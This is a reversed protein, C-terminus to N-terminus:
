QADDPEADPVDAGTATSRAVVADALRFARDVALEPDANAAGAAEAAALLRIALKNRAIQVASAM